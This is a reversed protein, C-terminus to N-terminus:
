QVTCLFEPNLQLLESGRLMTVSILIVWSFALLKMKRSVPLNTVQRIYSTIVTDM